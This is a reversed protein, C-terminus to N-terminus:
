FDIIMLEPTTLFRIPMLSQGLGATIVLRMNNTKYRYVGHRYGKKPLKDGRLITFEANFPLRVQGDHTHGSLMLADPLIYDSNEFSLITDPNHALLIVTDDDKPVSEYFDKSTEKEPERWDYFGAIKISKTYDLPIRGIENRLVKINDFKEIEGIYEKIKLKDKKCTSSIDHNGLVVFVPLGLKSLEGLFNRMQPLGKTTQCLDGAIIIGNCDEKSIVHCVHSLDVNCFPFHMDSILALRRAPCDVEDNFADVRKISLKKTQFYCLLLVGAACLLVFSIFIGLEWPTIQM